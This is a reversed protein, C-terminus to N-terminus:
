YPGCPAPQFDEDGYLGDVVRQSQDIAMVMDRDEDTGTMLTMYM